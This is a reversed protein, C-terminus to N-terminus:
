LNAWACGELLTISILWKLYHHYLQKLTKTAAATAINSTIEVARGPTKLVNTEVKKVDKASIRELSEFFRGLGEAQKTNDSFTM